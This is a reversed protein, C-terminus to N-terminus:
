PKGNNFRLTTEVPLFGHKRLIKVLGPRATTTRFSTCNILITKASEVGFSYLEIGGCGAGALLVGEKGEVTLLMCGKREGSLYLDVLLAAGELFMTKLPEITHSPWTIARSLQEDHWQEWVRVIKAEKEAM